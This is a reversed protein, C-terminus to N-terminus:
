RMGCAGILFTCIGADLHSLLTKIFINFCTFLSLSPSLLPETPFCTFMFVLHAHIVRVELLLPNEFTYYYVAPAHRVSAALWQIMAKLQPDGRYAGCGWNGTAIPLRQSCCCCMFKM